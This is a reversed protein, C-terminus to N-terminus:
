LWAFVAALLWGIVAVFKLQDLQNQKLDHKSCEREYEARWHQVDALARERQQQLGEFEARPVILPMSAM